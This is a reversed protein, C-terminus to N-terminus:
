YWRARVENAVQIKLACSMDNENGTRVIGVGSPETTVEPNGM